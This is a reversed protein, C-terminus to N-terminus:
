DTKRRAAAAPEVRDPEIHVSVDVIPFRLRVTQEIADAVDHADAASIAPDVSVVIDASGSARSRVRHTQRVGPVRNVASTLEHLDAATRDVLIPIARRFLGFALVGILGSVVLATLTDLWAWGRAAFQWGAIVAATTMVDSVTHRSDAALIDSDLRRAWHSQWVALGGNLAWVGLMVGLSWNSHVIPADGRQLAHLAMEVALVCLLTAVVFVALSEYKRHGYPHDHDPPEAAFHMAVLAVGNNAMDALSHIADGIIAASGTSFGVAAKAAVAAANVTGEIWLLRIVQRDRRSSDV